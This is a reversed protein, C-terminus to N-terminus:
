KSPKIKSPDNVISVKIFLNATQNYRNGTQIVITRNDDPMGVSRSSGIEVWHDPQVRLTTMTSQQNFTQPQQHDQQERLRYIKLLIQSGQQHPEVWFGQTVNRRQYRVGNHWWGIGVSKIVAVNSGTSIFATEGDQVTVYQNRKQFDDSQTNFEIVNGLNATTNGHANGQRIAIKFLKPPIDIRQLLYRIQTLNQPTTKIVLTNNQGSVKAGETLVPQLLPIVDSATKYHLNIVKVIQQPSQAQCQLTLCLLGILMFISLTPKLLPSHSM